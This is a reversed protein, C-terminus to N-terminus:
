AGFNMEEFVSFTDDPNTPEYTLERVDQINISAAVEQLFEGKRIEELDSKTKRSTLFVELDAIIRNMQSYKEELMVKADVLKMQVREERWVEAMQLMKREEEVEEWLKRSERKLTEIEAKDEGVEKALEDCVEEILEKSKREKEYEQLYRKASLKADALENVLKSNVIELRQRNKKERSLEAKMDDIIVRIKEHERSRWAAREESLKQLFQELKKKSSRREAELENVRTRAQQLQAELASIVPADSARQNVLKTQGFVQKLEDLTKGGVPDWKTAGEMACNSFQFSPEFKHQIGNKPVSVWHPSHGLDDALSSHMREVHHGHIRAGLHGGEFQLGLSKPVNTQFEPLHLRWLAAGLKRASVVPKVRRGGKRAVEGSSKEEEVSNNEDNPEDFKWRLLPTEPRSSRKSSERKLRVAAGSPKTKRRPSKRPFTPKHSLDSSPIPGQAVGPHQIEQAGTRGVTIKM